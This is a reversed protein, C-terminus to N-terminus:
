RWMGTMVGERSNGIERPQKYIDFGTVRRLLRLSYNIRDFSFTSSALDFEPEDPKEGPKKRFMKLLSKYPNESKESLIAQREEALVNPDQYHEFLFEFSVGTIKSIISAELSRQNPKSIASSFYDKSPLEELVKKVEDNLELGEKKLQTINLLYHPM